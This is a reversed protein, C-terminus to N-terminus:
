PRSGVEAIPRLRVNYPPVYARDKRLRRVFEIWLPDDLLRDAEVYDPGEFYELVYDPDISAIDASTLDNL